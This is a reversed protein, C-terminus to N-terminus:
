APVAELNGNLITLRRVCSDDGLDRNLHLHRSLIRDRGGSISQPQLASWNRHGRSDDNGPAVRMLVPRGSAIREGDGMMLLGRGGRASVGTSMSQGRFPRKRVSISLCLLRNRSTQRSCRAQGKLKL